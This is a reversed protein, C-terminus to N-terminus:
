PNEGTTPSPEATSRALAAELHAILGPWDCFHRPPEDMGVAQLKGRWVYRGDGPAAPWFRLTFLHPSAPGANASANPNADDDETM